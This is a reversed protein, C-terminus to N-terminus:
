HCILGYLDIRCPAYLIAHNRQSGTSRNLQHRNMSRNAELQVCCAPFTVTPSVIKFKSSVEYVKLDIGFEVGAPVGLAVFFGGELIRRRAQEEDM